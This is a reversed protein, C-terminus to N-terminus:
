SLWQTIKLIVVDKILIASYTIANTIYLLYHLNLYCMKRKICVYLIVLVFIYDAVISFNLFSYVSRVHGLLATFIRRNERENQLVIAVM